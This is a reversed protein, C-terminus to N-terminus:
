GAAVPIEARLITGEGLPSEVEFRGGLAEVRDALGRLGSGGSPAAGGVGDDRVEIRAHANTREVGISVTTACAYKAVNTLAEAVVYYAAAEVPDPLREDLEVTLAVPVPARQAVARVAPELGRETLVAPHIGRALERLEQLALSLEESAQVLADDEPHRRAALRLMLALSVLRQQAGDHLNRELRRREADGAQVIRARSAALDERTRANALAQGALEAFDAIRQEAGRPFPEGSGGSVIIAGWLRGEQFIPGAVASHHGLKRLSAALEGELDDYSDVRAPAGTRFVRASVSDGALSVTAGVEHVPINTDHWRALVTATEDENFRIMNASPAGLLKGVEETIVTFAERPDSTTAIATAVRRLAAQETALHRLVREREDAEAVNAAVAKQARCREAFQSILLGLSDMTERLAGDPALTTVFNMVGIRPVEFSLGDEPAEPPEGWAFARRLTGRAIKLWMAGGPSGLSTGIAELLAPYADAEGDAAALVRM